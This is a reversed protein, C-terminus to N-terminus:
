FLWIYKLVNCYLSSKNISRTDKLVFDHTRLVDESATRGETSTWATTWSQLRPNAQMTSCRSGM